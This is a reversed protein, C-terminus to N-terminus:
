GDPRHVLRAHSDRPGLRFGPTSREILFATIGLVGKEPDTAAFCVSLDAEAASTIWTKKGNIIWGDGHRGARTTMAFIDSGAGPETAANAGLLRGSCLGPLYRSKQAESGFSLLPLTVTFLTAGIAFVLGTDACGHGLGELAAVTTPLDLGRGGYETPVPLGQIGM